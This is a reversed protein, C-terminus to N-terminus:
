AAFRYLGTGILECIRPPSHRIISGLLAEARARGGGEAMDPMGSSSYCLEEETAGWSSKFSRLGENEFDSRGFNFWRNGGRQARQIAHWLLLHNPRAPWASALSAGFKYVVTGNWVLFVAGAVPQGESEVLLTFSLGAADLQQWIARFLRRPQPPVGLRRRTGVHLGYYVQTIDAETVAERITLRGGGEAKKISRRLNQHGGKRIEELDRDIALRHEVAAARTPGLAPASDRVEWVENETQALAQLLSDVEAEPGLPGCHDTFPLCRWRRRRGVGPVLVAPLGATIQGGPQRLVVAEAHFGYVASIVATWAPHHFPTAAPQAAVFEGWETGNLAVGEIM